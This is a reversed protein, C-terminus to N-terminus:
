ATLPAQPVPQDSSQGTKARKNLYLYLLGFVASYMVTLYITALIGIITISPLIFLLSVGFVGWIKGGNGKTAHWSAKYAEIVGLHQDVLYYRALILRTAFILGPVILLILGGLVTLGVLIDLLFMKWWLPGITSIATKVDVPHGKVSELLAYTFAVSFCASVVGSVISGVLIIRNTAFSAILSVAIACLALLILTGLNIRIAARSPKFAGFAGPWNTLPETSTKIQPQEM